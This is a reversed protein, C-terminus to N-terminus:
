RVAGFSLGRVLYRQFFFAMILPPLLTVVAAASMTEWSVEYQGIFLSLVIPLTQSATTNSFILPVLFANWTTLLCTLFVTALGPLAVPVIVRFLVDMRSAGDIRAAEEIEPPTTRIYTEMIWVYLPLGYAVFVVILGIDTDLLGLNSIVFYLRIISVWIPLPLLFMMLLFLPSKGFFRLRSFAYAALTSLATVIAATGISTILSNRLGSLLITGTPTSAAGRYGATGTILARYNGLTPHGPIWHKIPAAYLEPRTSISSILLWCIPLLAWGLLVLVVVYLPLRRMSRRAWRLPDNLAADQDRPRTSAYRGSLTRRM